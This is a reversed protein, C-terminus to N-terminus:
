FWLMKKINVDKDDDQLALFFRHYYHYIKFIIKKNTDLYSVHIYIKRRPWMDQLVPININPHYFVRGDYNKYQKDIYRIKNIFGVLYKHYSKKICIKELDVTKLQKKLKKIFTKIFLYAKVRKLQNLPHKSIYAKTFRVHRNNREDIYTEKGHFQLIHNVIDFNIHHFLTNTIIINKSKIQTQCLSINRLSSIDLGLLTGRDIEKAICETRNTELHEPRIGREVLWRISGHSHVHNSITRHNTGRLIRLWMVRLVSNTVADDLRCINVM